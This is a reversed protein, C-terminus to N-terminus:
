IFKIDLLVNLLENFKRQLLKKEHIIILEPANKEILKPIRKNCVAISNYYELLNIDPYKPCVYYIPLINLILFNLFRRNEDTAYQNILYKIAEGGSLADIIGIGQENLLKIYVPKEIVDGKKFENNEKPNIVIYAEFDILAKLKDKEIEFIDQFYNINDQFYKMQVVPVNLEIYHMANVKFLYELDRTEKISLGSQINSSRRLVNNVNIM